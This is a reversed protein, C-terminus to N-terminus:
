GQALKDRFADVQASHERKHGYYTYVLFDDLSYEMGYWPLTGAERLKEAPIQAIQSMVETHATNYEALVETSSKGKRMAVQSDNFARGEKFKDLHPTPGDGLFGGLIDCLVLEYSALHAVIDKVSWVGCVGGKDWESQPVNDLSELFTQNGYKLIDNANM